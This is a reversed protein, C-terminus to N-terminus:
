CSILLNYAIHYTDNMTSFGCLIMVQSQPKEAGEILENNQNKLLCSWQKPESEGSEDDEAASPM